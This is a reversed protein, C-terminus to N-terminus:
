GARYAFNHAHASVGLPEVPKGTLSAFGHGRWQSKVRSDPLQQLLANRMVLCPPPPRRFRAVPPTQLGIRRAWLREM